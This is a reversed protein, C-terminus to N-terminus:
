DAEQQQLFNNIGFVLRELYYTGLQMQLTARLKKKKSPDEPLL